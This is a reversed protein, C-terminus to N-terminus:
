MLTWDSVNLLHIGSGKGGIALWKSDSSWDLCSISDVTNTFISSLTESIENVTAWTITDCVRFTKGSGALAVYRGAPSWKTSLVNYGLNIQNSLEWGDKASLISVIGNDGGITLFCGSAGFAVSRVPLNSTYEAIPVFFNSFIQETDFLTVSGDMRGCALTKSTWDQCSITSESQDVEGVSEWDSAPRLLTLIGDALGIGLREDHRSFAISKIASSLISNLIMTRSRVSLVNLVGEDGGLALYNNSNSFVLSRIPKAFEVQFIVKWDRTAMITLSCDDAAYALYSSRKSSNGIKSFAIATINSQSKDERPIEQPEGDIDSFEDERLVWDSSKTSQSLNSSSAVTSTDDVDLEAGAKILAVNCDNDSVVLYRRVDGNLVNNQQGWALANIKETRHHEYVLAWGKTEVVLCRGDSGGIALFSDSPSWCLSTIRYRFKAMASNDPINSIECLIKFPSNAEIISVERDGVALYMGDHSWKLAQIATSRSATEHILDFSSASYIACVKDSGAVALYEGTLSWDLCYILGSRELEITSDKMLQLLSDEDDDRKEDDDQNSYVTSMPILATKGDFGGVALFRRDPSFCVAYIRDIRELKHIVVIDQLTQSSTNIIIQLIWAKCGDGGVALQECSGFDLSRVRGEISFELAEVRINMNSKLLTDDVNISDKFQLGEDVIQTIVVKGNEDGMALLLPDLPDMSQFASSSSSPEVSKRNMAVATINCETTIEKWILGRSPHFIGNSTMSTQQSPSSEVVSSPWSISLQRNERSTQSSTNPAISNEKSSSPCTVAMQLFRYKALRLQLARGQKKVHRDDVFLQRPKLIPVDSAPASIPESLSTTSTSYFSSPSSSSSSIGHITGMKTPSPESESSSVTWQVAPLQYPLEESSSNKIKRDSKNGVLSIKKKWWMQTEEELSNRNEVKFFYADDYENLREHMQQGELSFCSGM